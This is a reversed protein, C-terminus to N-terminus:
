NFAPKFVELVFVSKQRANYPLEVPRTAEVPWTAELLLRVATDYPIDGSSITVQDRWLYVLMRSDITAVHDVAPTGNRDNIIQYIGATSHKFINNGLDTPLATWAATDDLVLTGPDTPQADPILPLPDAGAIYDDWNAQSDTIQYKLYHLLQDAANASYTELSADRSAKAGIPFLVMVSCIGIACVGLALLIEVMTFPHHKHM